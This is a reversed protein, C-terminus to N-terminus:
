RLEYAVQQAEVRENSGHQALLLLVLLLVGHWV